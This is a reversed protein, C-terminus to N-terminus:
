FFLDEGALSLDIQNTALNFHEIFTQGSASRGTEDDKTITFRGVELWIGNPDGALLDASTYDVGAGLNVPTETVAGTTPDMTLVAGNDRSDVIVLRGDFYRLTAQKITTLDFEDDLLYEGLRAGLPHVAEISSTAIDFQVVGGVIASVDDVTRVDAEIWWLDGNGEVLGHDPDIDTQLLRDVQDATPAPGAAFVAFDNIRDPAVVDALQPDDQDCAIALEIEGSSPDVYAPTGLVTGVLRGDSLGILDTVAGSCAGSDSAFEYFPTVFAAMQDGTNADFVRFTRDSSGFDGISVVVNDGAVAELRHSTLDESEDTERDFGLAVLQRTQGTAYDIKVVSIDSAFTQGPRPTAGLAYAAGSSVILDNNRDVTEVSAIGPVARAQGTALDVDFVGFGFSPQVTLLGTIPGDVVGGSAVDIQEIPANAPDNAIDDASPGPADDSSCAAVLMVLALAMAILRSAYQM